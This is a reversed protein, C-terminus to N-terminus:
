RVSSVLDENLARDTPIPSWRSVLGELLLPTTQLNAVMATRTNKKLSFMRIFNFSKMLALAHIQRFESRGM